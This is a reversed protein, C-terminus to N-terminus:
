DQRRHLVPGKGPEADTHTHRLVPAQVALLRAKVDDFESTDVVYDQRDPLLASIEEQLRHIRDETLPYSAFSRAIQKHFPMKTALHYGPVKALLDQMRVEHAHLKELASLFAEPDYGAAYVYEIGLLDAEYEANRSFKKGSLSGGIGGVDQLLLGAPGAFLGITSVMNAIRRRTAARTVHRAAIHGIEHAMVSALESEGDLGTILGSDIYLFGGPLGFAGMDDSDIVKITFPVEADSNRVIKQGVENIYNTVLPETILKTTRDLSSALNEGITRERNISYLNIGRGVGRQGIHDLDYKSRNKVAKGTRHQTDVSQESATTPTEAFLGVSLVLLFVCISWGRAIRFFTQPPIADPFSPVRM